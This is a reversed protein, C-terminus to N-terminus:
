LTTAALWVDSLRTILQLKRVLGRPRYQLAQVRSLWGPNKGHGKEVTLPFLISAKRWLGGGALLHKEQDGGSVQREPLDLALGSAPPGM